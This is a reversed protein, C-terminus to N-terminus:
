KFKIKIEKQKRIFSSLFIKSPVVDYLFMQCISDGRVCPKLIETKKSSHKLKRM